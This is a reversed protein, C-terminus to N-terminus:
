YNSPRFDTIKQDQGRIILKVPRMNEKKRKRNIARTLPGLQDTMMNRFSFPSVENLLKECKELRWLKTLFEHQIKEWRPGEIRIYPKNDLLGVVYGGVLFPHKGFHHLGTRRQDDFFDDHKGDTATLLLLDGWLMVEVLAKGLKRRYYRNTPDVVQYQRAIKSVIETRSAFDVAKIRHVAYWVHGCRPHLRYLYLKFLFEGLSSCIMFICGLKPAVRYVLDDRISTLYDLKDCRVNAAEGGGCVSFVNVIVRHFCTWHTVVQGM